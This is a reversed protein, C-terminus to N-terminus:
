RSSAVRDLAFCIPGLVHRSTDHSWVHITLAAAIVATIVAAAMMSLVVGRGVGHAVCHGQGAHTVFIWRRMLSVGPIAALMALLCCIM